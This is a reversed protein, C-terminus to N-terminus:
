ESPYTIVVNDSVAQQVILAPTLLFDVNEKMELSPDFPQTAAKLIQERVTPNAGGLISDSNNTNKIDIITSSGSALSFCVALVIGIPVVLYLLYVKKKSANRKSM